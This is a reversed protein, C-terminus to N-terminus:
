PTSTAAGSPGSSLAGRCTQKSRCRVSDNLWVEGGSLEPEASLDEILMQLGTSWAVAGTHSLNDAVLVNRMGSVHVLSPRIGVILANLRSQYTPRIM